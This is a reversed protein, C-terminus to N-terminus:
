EAFRSGNIMKNMSQNVFSLFCFSHTNKLFTATEMFTRIHYEGCHRMSVRSIHVLSSTETRYCKSLRSSFHNLQKIRLGSLGSTERPEEVCDSYRNLNEPKLIVSFMLSLNFCALPKESIALQKSRLVTNPFLFDEPQIIM